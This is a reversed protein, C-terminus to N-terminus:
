SPVLPTPYWAPAREDAPTASFPIPVGRETPVVMIDLNVGDESSVYAIWEGEPSFRPDYHFGPTPVV